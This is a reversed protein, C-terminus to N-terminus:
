DVSGMRAAREPRLIDALFGAQRAPDLALAVVAIQQEDVQAIVVAHGLHHHVRAARDELGGLRHAGLAHDRDAALHHGAVGSRDIRAQGGALDFEVGGVTYAGHGLDRTESEDLLEAPIQHLRLGEPTNLMLVIAEGDLVMARAIDVQLGWYDTRGAMDADAAWDDVAASIAARASPDSHASTPRAGAGVLITVWAEVAARCYPDNAYAHRARARVTSVAALTESAVRGFRPQEGWSSGSAADFRRVAPTSRTRPAFPRLINSLLNM